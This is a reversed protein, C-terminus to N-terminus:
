SSCRQAGRPDVGLLADAVDAVRDGVESLEVGFGDDVQHEVLLQGVLRKRNRDAIRDLLSGPVIRERTFQELQEPGGGLHLLLVLRDVQDIPKIGLMDAKGARVVVVAVGGTRDAPDGSYTEGSCTAAHPFYGM